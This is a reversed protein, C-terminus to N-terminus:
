NNDVELPQDSYEEDDLSKDGKCVEQIVVASFIRATGPGFSNNINCNTKVAKLGMKFEFIFIVWIQNKDLM